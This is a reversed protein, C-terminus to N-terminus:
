EDETKSRRPASRVVAIGLGTLGIGLLAWVPEHFRSPDFRFRGAVYDGSYITGSKPTYVIDALAYLLAFVGAAVSTWGLWQATREKAIAIGGGSLAIGALAWAPKEFETPDFQLEGSVGGVGPWYFVAWFANLLAFVGAAALTWGLTKTVHVNM